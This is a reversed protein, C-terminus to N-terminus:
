FAVERTTKVLMYEAYEHFMCVHLALIVTKVFSEDIERFM